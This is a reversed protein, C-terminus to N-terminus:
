RRDGWAGTTSDLAALHRCPTGTVTNFEGGVYLRGAALALAIVPGDVEPTFTPDVSGDSLVHVLGHRILGEAHAFSGGLYFGGQSDSVAATVEGDLVPWTGAPKGTASDVVAM